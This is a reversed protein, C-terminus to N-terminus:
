KLKSVTKKGNQIQTTYNPPARIVPHFQVRISLLSPAQLSLNSLSSAAIGCHTITAKFITVNSPAVEAWTGSKSNLSEYSSLFFSFRRIAKYLCAPINPQIHGTNPGRSPTVAHHSPTPNGPHITLIADVAGRCIVAIWAM